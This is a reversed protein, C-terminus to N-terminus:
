THNHDTEFITVKWPGGCVRVVRIMAKCYTRNINKKYVAIMSAPALAYTNRGGFIQVKVLMVNIARGCVLVKAIHM